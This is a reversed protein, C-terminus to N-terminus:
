RRWAKDINRHDVGRFGGRAVGNSTRNGSGESPGRTRFPDRSQQWDGVRNDIALGSHKTPVDSPATPPHLVAEM